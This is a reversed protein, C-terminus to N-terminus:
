LLTFRVLDFDAGRMMLEDMRLMAVAGRRGAKVLRRPRFTTTPLILGYDRPAVRVADWGDGDRAAMLEANSGPHSLMPVFAPVKGPRGLAAVAAGPVLLFAWEVDVDDISAHLMQPLGPALRVRVSHAGSRRSAPEDPEIPSGQLAEVWGVLFPAADDPAGLKLGILRHLGIRPRAYKRICRVADTSEAALTWTEAGALLQGVRQQEIEERPRTIGGLKARQYAYVNQGNRQAAPPVHGGDHRLAERVPMGVVATVPTAGAVARWARDPSDINGPSVAGWRQKLTLLLERAAQPRLSEGIGVERPTKGEALADLRKDISAMASQTDFRVVHAAFPVTPGPNAIPRAPASGVDSRRELRFGVKSSWRQAAMRVVELEIASRAAPDALAVMVPMVFAARCSRTLGVRLADAVEVDQCDLDRVLQGLVCHRDWIAEPVPWRARLICMLLQANVDLARHLAGIRSVFMPRGAGAPAGAPTTVGTLTADTPGPVESLQSVLWAYVDRLAMAADIVLWCHVALEEDLPLVSFRDDGSLDRLIPLLVGRIREAIAFKREPTLAPAGDRVGLAGLAQLVQTIDALNEASSPQLMGALWAKAAAGDTIPARKDSRAVDSRSFRLM